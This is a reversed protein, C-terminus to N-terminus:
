FRIQVGLVAAHQQLEYDSKTIPFLFKYGVDVAVRPNVAFLFGAALQGAAFDDNADSGLEARGYGAGAGVYPTIPGGTAVDLYGNVLATFVELDEPANIEGANTKLKDGNGKRYSGEVELRVQGFDYGIAVGAGYGNDVSMDIDRTIELDRTAALGAWATLYNGVPDDAREGWFSASPCCPQASAAAPQKIPATPAPAADAAAPAPAPAAKDVNPNECVAPNIYGPYDRYVKATVVEEAGVPAVSLLGMSVLLLGATLLTRM